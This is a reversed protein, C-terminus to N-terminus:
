ALKLPFELTFTTGEGIKSSVHISGGMTDVVRKAINLGLGHGASDANGIVTRGSKQFVTGQEDLAIGKGDDKITIQAIADGKVTKVQEIDVDIREGGSHKIANVILNRIVCRIQHRDGVVKPPDNSPKRTTIVVNMTKAMPKLMEVEELLELPLDIPETWTQHDGSDIKALNLTSTVFEWCFTTSDYASEVGVRQDDSLPDLKILDCAAIIGNLLNKIEHCFYFLEEVSFTSKEMASNSTEKRM